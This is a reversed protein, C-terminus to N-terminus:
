CTMTNFRRNPPPSLCTQRQPLCLSRPPSILHLQYSFPGPTNIPCWAGESVDEKPFAVHNCQPDAPTFLFLWSATAPRRGQLLLINLVSAASTREPYDLLHVAWCPAQSFFYSFSSPHTLLKRLVWKERYRWQWLESLLKYETSDMM